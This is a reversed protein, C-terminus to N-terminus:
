QPNEVSFQQALRSLITKNVEPSFAILKQFEQESFNILKVDTYCSVKASHKRHLVCEAEGFFSGTGLYEFHNNSFVSVTGSVIYYVCDSDDNIDFLTDNENHEVLHSNFFVEPQLYIIRKIEEQLKDTKSCSLLYMQEFLLPEFFQCVFIVQAFFLMLIFFSYVSLLIIIINSLVGYIVNYRSTKVFLHFFITFIWYVVSSAAGALICLKLPPKTGSAFRYTVSLLIFILIVPSFNVIFKGFHQLFAPIQFPITKLRLISLVFLVFSIIISIIIILGAESAFGILSFFLNKREAQTRFIRRFGNMAYIFFRRALWFISIGLIIEFFGVKKVSLVSKLITPLDITEFLIIRNQVWDLLLDPSSHFFRIIIVFIMTIVPVISCLFGFSGAAAYSFLDNQAFLSVSLGIYQILTPSLKKKLKM